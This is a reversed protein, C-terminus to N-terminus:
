DNQLILDSSQANVLLDHYKYQRYVARLITICGEFPLDVQKVFAKKDIDGIYALNDAINKSTRHYRM